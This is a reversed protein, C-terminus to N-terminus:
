PMAERFEYVSMDGVDKVGAPYRFREAAGPFYAKALEWGQEGTDTNDTACVVRSVGNARLAKVKDENLKWGFLAATRRAGHQAAMMLDLIGEVLLCPAGPDVSYYAVHLRGDFGENFLYKKPGPTIRRRQYGILEHGDHIQFAIPYEAWDTLRVDFAELTARRFGRGLLYSACPETDAVSMWNVRHFRSWGSRPDVNSPVRWPEDVTVVADAHLKRARHIVGLSALPDHTFRTVFDELAGGASCGYCHWLGTRLDMHCSPTNEEHFPCRMWTDRGAPEHAVKLYALTQGVPM